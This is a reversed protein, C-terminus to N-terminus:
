QKKQMSPVHFLQLHDPFALASRMTRTFLLSSATASGRHSTNSGHSCGGGLDGDAGSGRLGRRGGEVTATTNHLRKQTRREVLGLRVQKNCWQMLGATKTASTPYAVRDVDHSFVTMAVRVFSEVFCPYTLGTHASLLEEIEKRRAATAKVQATAATEAAASAGRAKSSKLAAAEERKEQPQLASDFVANGRAGSGRLLVSTVADIYAQQTATATMLSPFVDLTRWLEVFLKYPVVHTTHSTREFVEKNELSSMTYLQQVKWWMDQRTAPVAARIRHPAAEAPTTSRTTTSSAAARTPLRQQATTSLATSTLAVPGANNKRGAGGVVSLERSGGLSRSDNLILSCPNSVAAAAAAAHPPTYCSSRHVVVPVSYVDFLQRLTTENRQLLRLLDDLALREESSLTSTLYSPTVAVAAAAATIDADTCRMGGNGDDAEDLLCSFDDGHNAPSIPSVPPTAATVVGASRVTETAMLSPRRRSKGGGSGGDDGGESEAEGLPALHDFDKASSNNSNIAGVVKEFPRLCQNKTIPRPQLTDSEGQCESDLVQLAPVTRIAQTYVEAYATVVDEAPLSDLSPVSDLYAFAAADRAEALKEANGSALAKRWEEAKHHATAAWTRLLLVARRFLQFDMCTVAHYGQTRVGCSHLVEAVARPDSVALPLLLLTSSSSSSSPRAPSAISSASGRAATSNRRAPRSALSAGETGSCMGAPAVARRRQVQTLHTAWHCSSSWSPPTAEHVPQGEEAAAVATTAIDALHDVYGTLTLFRYFASFSMSYHEVEHSLRRTGTTAAASASAAVARTVTRTAFYAYVRFLRRVAADYADHFASLKVPRVLAAVARAFTGAPAEGAEHVTHSPSRRQERQQLLQPEVGKTEEGRSELSPATRKPAAAIAKLAAGEDQEQSSGKRVPTATSGVSPVHPATNSRSTRRRQMLQHAAMARPTLPPSGRGSSNNPSRSPTLSSGHHHPPQQQQQRPSSPSRMPSTPSRARREDNDDKVSGEADDRIDEGANRSVKQPSPSASLDLPVASDDHPLPTSEELTRLLRLQRQEPPLKEFKAAYSLSTSAQPRTPVGRADDNHSPTVAAFVTEEAISRRPTSIPSRSLSKTPPPLWKLAAATRTKPVPQGEGAEEEEPLKQAEEAHSCAGECRGARQENAVAREVAAHACRDSGGRSSNSSSNSSGSCAKGSGSIGQGVVPVLADEAEKVEVVRPAPVTGSHLSSILDAVEKAVAATRPDKMAQVYPGVPHRPPTSFLLRQPQQVPRQLSSSPLSASPSFSTTRLAVSVVGGDCGGSLSHSSRPVMSAPPQHQESHSTFCTSPRRQAATARRKGSVHCTCGSVLRVGLQPVSPPLVWPFRLRLYLMAQQIRASHLLRRTQADHHQDDKHAHWADDGTSGWGAVVHKLSPVTAEGITRRGETALGLSLANSIREYVPNDSSPSHRLQHPAGAAAGNWPVIESRQSLPLLVSVVGTIASAVYLMPTSSYLYPQPTLMDESTNDILAPSREKILATMAFSSPFVLGPPLAGASAVATSASGGAGTDKQQAVSTSASLPAYDLPGVYTSVGGDVELVRVAHHTQDLLFLQANGTEDAWLAMDSLYGFRARSAASSDVYSATVAASMESVPATNDTDDHVCGALTWVRPVVLSTTKLSPMNETGCRRAENTGCTPTLDTTSPEPLTVSSAVPPSSPAAASFLVDLANEASTAAQVNNISSSNAWAAGVAPTSNVSTPPLTTVSAPELAHAAQPTAGVADLVKHQETDDVEDAKTCDHLRMESEEAREGAGDGAAKGPVTSKQLHAAPKSVHTILRVVNNPGDTFLLGASCWALATAGRLLSSVCSGDRYGPIGDMGAITRVLRNSFNAYRIACNGVDSVFLVSCRRYRGLCRLLDEGGKGVDDVDEEEEVRWCLAGPANFRAVSFHGDVFGRAGGMLPMPVAEALAVSPSASKLSARSRRTPRSRSPSPSSAGGGVGENPPLQTTVSAPCSPSVDVVREGLYQQQQQQQQTHDANTVDAYPTPPVDNGQNGKHQTAPQPDAPSPSRPQKAPMEATHCAPSLTRPHAQTVATVPKKRPLRGVVEEAAHKTGGTATSGSHLADAHGGAGNDNNDEVVVEQEEEIQYFEAPAVVRVEMAPLTVEIAWIAHQASDSVIFRHTLHSSTAAERRREECWLQQTRAVPTDPVDAHAATVGTDNENEISPTADPHAARSPSSSSTTTTTSSCNLRELSPSATRGEASGNRDGSQRAKSVNGDAGGVAASEPETVTAAKREGDEDAHTTCAIPEDQARESNDVAADWTEAQLAPPSTCSEGVAALTAPMAAEAGVEIVAGAPHVRLVDDRQHAAESEEEATAGEDVVRDDRESVKDFWAARLAAANHSLGYVTYDRVWGDFGRFPLHEAVRSLTPYVVSNGEAGAGTSSSVASDCMEGEVRRVVCVGDRPPRPGSAQASMKEVSVPVRRTAAVVDGSPEVVDMNRFSLLLHYADLPVVILRPPAAAATVAANLTVVTNHSQSARLAGAAQAVKTFHRQQQQQRERTSDATVDCSAERPTSTVYPQSGGSYPLQSSKGQRRLHMADTERTAAREAANSGGAASGTATSTSLSSLDFRSAVANSFVGRLSVITKSLFVSDHDFPHVAVPMVSRDASM